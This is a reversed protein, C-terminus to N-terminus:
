PAQPASRDVDVRAHPAQLLQDIARQREGGAQRGVDLREDRAQVIRQADGVQQGAQEVHLRLVLLPQELLVVELDLEVRDRHRQRALDLDELQLALDLRAGFFLHGVRLPLVHQALLHLRDLGLEAFPVALDCSSRLRDGLRVQGLADRRDRVALDIAELAHRRRRGLVLHDAGVEVPHQVHRPVLRGLIPEIRDLRAAHEVFVVVIEVLDLLPDDLVEGDLLQPLAPQSRRGAAVAAM